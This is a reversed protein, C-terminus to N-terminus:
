VALLDDENFWRQQEVGNDTYPVLYQIDGDQNVSLEMITGQPAVVNLKVEDGVKFKTAM